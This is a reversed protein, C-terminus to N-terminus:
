FTTAAEAIATLIQQTAPAKTPDPRGIAATLQNTSDTLQYIAVTPTSEDTEIARIGSIGTDITPTSTPFQWGGGPEISLNILLDPESM